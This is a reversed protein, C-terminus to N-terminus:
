APRVEERLREAERLDKEQAEQLERRFEDATESDDELLVFLQAIYDALVETAYSM